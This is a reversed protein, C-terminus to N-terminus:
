ITTENRLPKVVVVSINWSSECRTQYGFLFDSVLSIFDNPANETKRTITMCLRSFTLSEDFRPICKNKLFQDNRLSFTSVSPGYLLISGSLVEVQNTLLKQGRPPPMTCKPRIQLCYFVHFLFDKLICKKENRVTIYVESQDVPWLVAFRQNTWKQIVFLKSFKNLLIEFQFFHFYFLSLWQTQYPQNKSFGWQDVM